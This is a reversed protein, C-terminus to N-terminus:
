LSGVVIVKRNDTAFGILEYSVDQALIKDYRM